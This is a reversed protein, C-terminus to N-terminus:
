TRKTRTKASSSDRTTQEEHGEPATERRFGGIDEDEKRGQDLKCRRQGWAAATWVLQMEEWSSGGIGHAAWRGEAEEVSTKGGGDM